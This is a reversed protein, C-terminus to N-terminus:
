RNGLILLTNARSRQAEKTFWHTLFVLLSPFVVGEVVGLLIRLTVLLAVTKVLGTLISLFGWLLLAWFIVRRASPPRRAGRSRSCSTASSSGAAATFSALEASSGLPKAM